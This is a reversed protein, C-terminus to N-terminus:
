RACRFGLYNNRIDPVNWYSSASRLFSDNNNWAGGRMVRGMEILQLDSTPSSSYYYEEYWDAVWEWVNGAMDLVDYPSAGAPYTFVPTTDAVNSGYNALDRNVGEGWPYTRGDTGRAAKEWQAETPLRGGAWLCYAEADHWSVNIVPYTDFEPNGYYSSRTSSGTSSPPDCANDEVCKAYMANTVETKDIWYADLYVTHVPQEDSDGDNSGMEFEGAPVYVMVMGDADRVQSPLPTPTWSNTTATKTQLLALAYATAQQEAAAQNREVKPLLVMFVLALALATVLGALGAPLLWKPLSSRHSPKATDNGAVTEPSRKYPAPLKVAGELAAWLQGAGQYRESPERVLARKLVGQLELSTSGPLKDWDPGHILHQALIVGPTDGSFVQKGTLMEWLICGLSYVDTAPSAPPKGEWLEPARYAPTGAMGGSMFSVNSGAYACALGFDGVMATGDADFLINSPKLDRHIYGKAHASGMATCVQRFIALSHELPLPKGSALRDALSGAPMHKMVIFFQGEQEDIEYIPIINPHNVTAAIEAERQFLHLFDPDSALLPKLMKLAVPRKLSLDTARYVTGFSGQGILEHLEFKGLRTM